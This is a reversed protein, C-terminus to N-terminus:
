ISPFILFIIETINKVINIVGAQTINPATVDLFLNGERMDRMAPIGPKYKM